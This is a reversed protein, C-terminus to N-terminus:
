EGEKILRFHNKRFEILGDDQMKSLENSLASRDLNLYDALQQRNFPIDFEQSRNIRSQSILYSLVRGRIHKSATHFSRHSLELNKRNSIQMLNFLFEPYRPYRRIEPSAIRRVDLFLIECRSGAAVDIMLPQNKALAYAEAFIQSTGVHSLINRNGQYDIREIRVDGTLVIGIEHVLDGEHLILEEKDFSAKRYTLIRLIQLIDADCFGAFLPTRILKRLNPALSVSPVPSDSPAASDFPAPPDSPVPSDSSSALSASPTHSDPSAATNM